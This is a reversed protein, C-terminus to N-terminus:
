YECVMPVPSADRNLVTLTMEYEPIANVKRIEVKSGPWIRCTAYTANNADDTDISVTGGGQLHRQLRTMLAMQDSQLYPIVFSAGHQERYRWAYTDGSGLGVAVDQEDDGIPTWDRFRGGAGAPAPSLSAAGVSDTWSITAV